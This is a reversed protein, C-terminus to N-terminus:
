TNLRNIVTRIHRLSKNLYKRQRLQRLCSYFRSETEGGRMCLLAFHLMILVSSGLFGCM